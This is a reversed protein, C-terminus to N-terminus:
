WVRRGIANLQMNAILNVLVPGYALVILAVAFGLWLRWNDLWAPAPAPRYPEALPMEVPKAVRAGAFVTGVVVIFFLTVSIWLIVGGIAADALLPHWAPETYTAQGLLVRRPVGYQLGVLHMAGSMVLM